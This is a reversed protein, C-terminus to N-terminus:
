KTAAQANVAAEIARCQVMLQDFSAPEEDFMGGGIMAAYDESLHELLEGDPVLRLSGQIAGTYLIVAGESDKMEFFAQKHRAVQAALERDAIAAAAIGATELQALDYWHRAYRLQLKGQLCYVHAATAKEWFTREAAMVRPSAVPFELQPLAAAADCEIDRVGAPEGTSRAGFELVVEPNIYDIRDAIPEYVVRVKDGEHVLVASLGSSELASHLVPLVTGAIWEPLRKRVLDNWKGQQSKSPPIPEEDEAQMKDPLLQRIDYTLDIDESFRRILGGYAKSLSTGGKFVLHQGFDAQYLANLTWVVWVDKELLYAPRGTKSSATLLAERRDDASLAVFADAMLM